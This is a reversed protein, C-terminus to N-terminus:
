FAWRGMEVCFSEVRVLATCTGCLGCHKGSRRKKLPFFCYHHFIVSPIPLQFLSKSKSQLFFFIFADKLSKVIYIDSELSNIQYM